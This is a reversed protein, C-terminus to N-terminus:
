ENEFDLEGAVANEGKAADDAEGQAGEREDVGGDWLQGNVGAGSGSEGDAKAEDGGQEEGDGSAGFALFGEEAWGGEYAEGGGGHLGEPGFFFPGLL